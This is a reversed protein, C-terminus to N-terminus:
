EPCESITISRIHVRISLHDLGTHTQTPVQLCQETLDTVSVDSVERGHLGEHVQGCLVLESEVCLFIRVDGTGVACVCM